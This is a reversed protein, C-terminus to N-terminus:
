MSIGLLGRTLQFNSMGHGSLRPTYRRSLVDSVRTLLQDRLAETSMTADLQVDLDGAFRQQAQADTSVQLMAIMPHSELPADGVHTLMIEVGTGGLGTVVEVPVQTPSQMVHLGPNRAFEGYAITAHVTNPAQLLAQRFVASRALAGDQAIVVTGGGAVVAGALAAFVRAMPDPLVGSALLAIRLDAAGAASSRPLSKGAMSEGFWNRVKDQVAQMGGDLQVSAFGIDDIDRGVRALYHRVADNHTRECGHELMLAHATFRHALHGALTQLYLDDSNASGCGETHVLAVYRSVPSNAPRQENLHEALVRAVQGSCLSTPMVLAIQDATPGNAGHLADFEFAAPLATQVSLPEGKPPPARQLLALNVDSTQPWDRWIQVQAHGALEGKSREGAAIRQALAFTDNGLSDMSEGDNYRGANVDMENALMQFRGSTTVFKLTPVFPFNTISGNGTIFFIINCGSAVQGAISELDNGPSDMFYYGSEHMPAGYDIVHDLRVDPDRKRAAGISKLAINYLGRYKNGGSPNGEASTGHWRAREKFTAIKDLFRQATALDRVKDLMYPEAGILEDTEALNAAGGNRIIEKAVWGALANGSIGSFADSGGCQLAVKLHSLPQASRECENVQPLWSDIIASNRQLETHRDSDIDVFAHVVDDLAYDGQRMFQELDANGYSGAGYDVSLVAGVNPHVMFGALTRLVFDINNPKVTGGGETHTVAVVGDINAFREGVGEFRKALAEAFAVSRSTTALIIVFNRTGVGRTGSRAFGEFQLPTAHRAVQEAAQFNDRDLSAAQMHDEFNCTLPLEFDIDREALVDLISQNCVYEGPAVDCIARGFPLGWSLLPEGNRIPRLVFRHGEMVTHPLTFIVKDHRIRTGAEIRRVAIAVNDGPTPIRGVEDFAISSMTSSTNNTMTSSM